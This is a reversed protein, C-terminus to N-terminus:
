HFKWKMSLKNIYENIYIIKSINRRMKESLFIYTTHQKLLFRTYINQETRCIRYIEYYFSEIILLHKVEKSKKWSQQIRPRTRRTKLLILRTTLQDGFYNFLTLKLDLVFCPHKAITAMMVISQGWRQMEMSWDQLFTAWGFGMLRSRFTEVSWYSVVKDEMQKFYRKYYSYKDPLCVKHRVWKLKWEKLRASPSYTSVFAQM